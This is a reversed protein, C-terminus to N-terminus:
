RGRDLDHGDFRRVVYIARATKGGVFLAASDYSSAPAERLRIEQFAGARPVRGIVVPANCSSSVGRFSVQHSRSDEM